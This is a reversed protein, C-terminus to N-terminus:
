EFLFIIELSELESFISIFFIKGKIIQFIRFNIQLTLIEAVFWFSNLHQVITRPDTLKSRSEEWKEAWGIQIRNGSKLIRKSFYQIVSKIRLLKSFVM